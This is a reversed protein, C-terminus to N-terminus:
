SLSFTISSLKWQTAFKNRFTTKERKNSSFIPFDKTTKLTSNLSFERSRFIFIEGPFSFRRSLKM